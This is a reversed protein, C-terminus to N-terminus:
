IGSNVLYQQMVESKIASIGIMVIKSYHNLVINQGYYQCKINYMEGLINQCKYNFIDMM